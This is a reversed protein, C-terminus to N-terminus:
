VARVELSVSVPTGGGDEFWGEFERVLDFELVYRGPRSPAALAAELDIADHSAVDRPLGLRFRRYDWELVSGDADLLHVGLLVAGPQTERGASAEWTASGVNWARVSAAFAEGPRASAPVRSVALRGRHRVAGSGNRERACVLLSRERSIAVRDVLSPALLM